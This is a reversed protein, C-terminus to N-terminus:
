PSLFTFSRNKYLTHEVPSCSNNSPAVKKVSRWPPESTPAFSVVATWSPSVYRIYPSFYKAELTPIAPTAITNARISPLSAPDRPKDKNATGHRCSSRDNFLTLIRLNFSLNPTIATGDPSTSNLP